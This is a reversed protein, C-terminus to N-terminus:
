ACNKGERAKRLEGGDFGIEQLFSKTGDLDLVMNRKGERYKLYYREHYPVSEVDPLSAMEETPAEAETQTSVEGATDETSATTAVVEEEVSEEVENQKLEEEFLTNEKSM